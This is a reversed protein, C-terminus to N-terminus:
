KLLSQQALKLNNKKEADQHLEMNYVKFKSISNVSNYIPLDSHANYKTTFKFGGFVLHVEDKKQVCDM